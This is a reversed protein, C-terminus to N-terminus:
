SECLEDHEIPLVHAADVAEVAAKLYVDMRRSHLRNIGYSVSEYQKDPGFAVIIVGCAGAERATQRAQGVSPQRLHRRRAM